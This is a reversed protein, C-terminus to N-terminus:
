RKIFQQDESGQTTTIIHYLGLQADDIIYHLGLSYSYQQCKTYSKNTITEDVLLFFLSFSAIQHLDWWKPIANNHISWLLIKTQLIKQIHALHAFHIIHDIKLNLISSKKFFTFKIILYFTFKVVLQNTYFFYLM